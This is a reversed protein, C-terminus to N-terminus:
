RKMFVGMDRVSGSALLTTLMWGHDEVWCLPEVDAHPWVWTKIHSSPDLRLCIQMRTCRVSGSSGAVGGECKYHVKRWLIIETIGIKMGHHILCFNILLYM